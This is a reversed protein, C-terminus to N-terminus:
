FGGIKLWEDKTCGVAHALRRASILSIKSIEGDTKYRCFSVPSIKAAKALDRDLQDTRGRATKILTTFVAMDANEKAEVKKDETLYVKPM